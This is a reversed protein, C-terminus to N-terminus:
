LHAIKPMVETSFLRLSRLADGLTMTALFLYALLYNIGLAAAQREIEARVTEPSGAIVSGDALSEELSAARPVGLRTALDSSGHMSRLYNLHALHYEMAPRAIRRAADDTDAVFINRMVGIAAGGPFEAKPSAAIGRRAFADRFADLNKRAFATPGLTM